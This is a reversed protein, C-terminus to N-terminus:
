EIVEDARALLTPPVDLGLAKATKANIVLEFKTPQQIPLDGPKAGRLIRDVYAASRRYIDIVDVGYSMLGGAAAYYRYPYVAPLRYRAAISAIVKSHASTFADPMVAVGSRPGHALENLVNDIEAEDRVPLAIPKVALQAAAAEFPRLFLSVYVAANDPNFLIAVQTIAPTIEKLMEVWKGMMSPEFNTFGTINGGPHALSPVFGLAVPDAVVAFVIPIIATQRILEAVAAAGAALIVDPSVRALEAAYTRMRSPDGAAWLYSFRINRGETWGLQQLTQNIAAARPGAGPDSDATAGMLVGVHRVSQQAWATLPCAVAAGGLLAVFERRHPQDFPM